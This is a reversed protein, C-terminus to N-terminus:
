WPDAVAALRPAIATASPLVLPVDRALAQANDVIQRVLADNEGVEREMRALKRATARAWVEYGSM